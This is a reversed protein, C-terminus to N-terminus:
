CIQMKICAKQFKPSCLASCPVSVYVSVYLTNYHLKLHKYKFVKFVQLSIQFSSVCVPKVLSHILAVTCRYLCNFNTWFLPWTPLFFVISFNDEFNILHRYGFINKLCKGSCLSISSALIFITIAMFVVLYVFLGFVLMLASLACCWSIGTPTPTNINM